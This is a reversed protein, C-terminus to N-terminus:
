TGCTMSAGVFQFYTNMCVKMPQPDWHLVNLHKVAVHHQGFVIHSKGTDDVMFAQIFFVLHVNDVDPWLKQFCFIKNARIPFKYFLYTCISRLKYSDFYLTYAYQETYLPNNVGVQWLVILSMDLKVAGDINGFNPEIKRSPVHQPAPEPEESFSKKNQSLCYFDICPSGASNIQM